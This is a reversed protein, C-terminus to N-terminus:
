SWYVSCVRSARSLSSFFPSLHWYSDGPWAAPGAVRASSPAAWAVKNIRPASRTPTPPVRPTLRRGLHARAPFHSQHRSSPLYGHVPGPDAACGRHHRHGTPAVLMGPDWSLSSPGQRQERRAPPRGSVEVSVAGHAPPHGQLQQLGRLQRMAVRAGVGPACNPDRSRHGSSQLSTVHLSKFTDERKGSHPRGSTPLGSLM